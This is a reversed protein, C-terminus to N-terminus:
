DKYDSFFFQVNGFKQFPADSCITTIKTSLLYASLLAHYVIVGGGNRDVTQKHM